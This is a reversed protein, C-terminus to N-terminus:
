EDRPISRVIKLCVLMAVATIILPVPLAWGVLGVPYLLAFNLVSSGVLTLVFVSTVTVQRYVQVPVSQFELTLWNVLVANLIGLVLGNLGGCMLGVPTGWLLLSVFDSKLWESNPIPSSNAIWNLLLAAVVPYAAGLLVGLGTGWLLFGKYIYTTSPNSDPLENM